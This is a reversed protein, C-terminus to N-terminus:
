FPLGIHLWLEEIQIMDLEIGTAIEQILGPTQGGTKRKHATGLVHELTGPPSLEKQGTLMAWGSSKMRGKLDDHTYINAM